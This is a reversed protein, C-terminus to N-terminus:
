TPEGTQRACWIEVYERWEHRYVKGADADIAVWHGEAARWLDFRGCASRYFDRSQREWAIRNLALAVM